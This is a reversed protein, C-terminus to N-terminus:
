ASKRMRKTHGVFREVAFKVPYGEFMNPPSESISASDEFLICLTWEGDDFDFEIANIEGYQSYFREAKEAVHIPADELHVPEPSM